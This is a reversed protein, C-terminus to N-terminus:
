SLDFCQYDFKHYKSYLQQCLPCKHYLKNPKQSEWENICHLHYFHGCKLLYVNGSEGFEEKCIICSNSQYAKGIIAKYHDMGFVYHKITSKLYHIIDFVVLMLLKRYFAMLFCTWNGLLGLVFLCIHCKWNDDPYLWTGIFVNLPNILAAMILFIAYTHKNTRWIKFVIFSNGM